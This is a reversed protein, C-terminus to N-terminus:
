QVIGPFRKLLQWLSRKANPDTSLAALSSPFDVFPQGPISSLLLKREEGDADPMVGLLVLQRDSFDRCQESVVRVFGAQDNGPVLVNNFVPWQVRFGTLETQSMARLINKALSEQLQYSAEDSLASVLLVRPSVWFEWHARIVRVDEPKAKPATAIEAPQAPSAAVVDNASRDNERVVEPKAAASDSTPPSDISGAMLGQIRALRNSREASDLKGPAFVNAIAPQDSPEPEAFDFDPSPAAGPLPARAYWMQIGAQGLYFQRAAEDLQTM